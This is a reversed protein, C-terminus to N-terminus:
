RDTSAVVVCVPLALCTLQVLIMCTVHAHSRVMCIDLASLAPSCRYMDSSGRTLSAATVCWCSLGHLAALVGVAAFFSIM